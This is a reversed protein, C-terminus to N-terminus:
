RLPLWGEVHLMGAHWRLALLLLGPGPRRQWAVSAAARRRQAWRDAALAAHLGASYSGVAAVLGVLLGAAAEVWQADHAFFLHPLPPPPHPPTPMSSSHLRSPSLPKFFQVVSLTQAPPAVVGAFVAHWVPHASREQLSAPPRAAVHRGDPRQRWRQVAGGVLNQQIAPVMLELFWSAFTTLSGCYGTRIGATGAGRFFLCGHSAPSV